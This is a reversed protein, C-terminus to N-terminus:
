GSYAPLSIASQDDLDARAGNVALGGLRGQGRHSGGEADAAAGHRQDGPGRATGLDEVDLACVRAREAAQQGASARLGSRALGPEPRHRTVTVPLVTWPRGAVPGPLDPCVECGRTSGPAVRMM